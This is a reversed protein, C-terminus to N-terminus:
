PQVAAAPALQGPPEGILVRLRQASLQQHPYDEIEIERHLINYRVQGDAQTLVHRLATGIAGDREEDHYELWAKLFLVSLKFTDRDIAGFLRAFLEASARRVVEVPARSTSGGGKVGYDRMARELEAVGCLAEESRGLYNGNFDSATATPGTRVGEAHRAEAVEADDALERLGWRTFVRSLKECRLVDLKDPRKMLAAGRMEAIDRTISPSWYTDEYLEDAERRITRAVWYDRFSQELLDGTSAHQAALRFFEFEVGNLHIDVFDDVPALPRARRTIRSNETRREAIEKVVDPLSPGGPLAENFLGTAVVIAPMVEHAIDLPLTTQDAFIHEAAQVVRRGVRINTIGFRRYQERLIPEFLPKRDALAIEYTEDVSPRVELEVDFAKERFTRLDSQSEPTSIKEDNFLVVVQCETSRLFDIFGLVAIITLNHGRRELDDLVIRRGRLARDTVVDTAAHLAAGGLKALTEGTKSFLGIIESLNGGIKTVVDKATSAQPINENLVQSFLAQRIEAVSDRGFLSCYLPKPANREDSEEVLWKQTQLWLYTKGCGWPGKVAIVQHLDRAMLYKRLARGAAAQDM